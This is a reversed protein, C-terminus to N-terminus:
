NAVGRARAEALTINLGPAIPRTDPDSLIWRGWEAYPADAPLADLEQRV